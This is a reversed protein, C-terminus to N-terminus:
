VVTEQTDFDIQNEIKPIERLQMEKELKDVQEKLDKTLISKNRKEMPPNLKEANEFKIVNEL